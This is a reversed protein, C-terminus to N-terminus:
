LARAASSSDLAAGGQGDEGGARALTVRMRATVEFFLDFTNCSALQIHFTFTAQGNPAVSTSSASDSLLTNGQSLTVIEAYPNTLTSTSTNQLLDTATL